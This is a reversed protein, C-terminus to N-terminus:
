VAERQRGVRHHLQVHDLDRRRHQHVDRRRDLGAVASHRECRRQVVGHYQKANDASATTFSYTTSTAGAINTFTVGDTSVQWQVTGSAAASFSATTSSPM